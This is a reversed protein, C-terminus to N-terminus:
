AHQAAGVHDARVDGARQGGVEPQRHDRRTSPKSAAAATGARPRGARRAGARRREAVDGAGEVDGAVADQHQGLGDAPQLPGGHRQGANATPPTPERAASPAARRSRARASRSGSRRGPRRCWGSARRAPSRAPTCSRPPTRRSRAAAAAGVPPRVSRSSAAGRAAWSCGGWSARLHGVTASASIMGIPVRPRGPRPVPLGATRRRARSAGPPAPWAARAPARRRRGASCGVAAAGGGRRATASGGSGHRARGRVGRGGALAVREGADRRAVPQGRELVGRALHEAVLPLRLQGPEQGEQAAPDGAVVDDVLVAEVGLDGLPEEHGRQARDGLLPEPDLDAADLVDRGLAARQHDGVVGAGDRDVAQHRHGRDVVRGAAM